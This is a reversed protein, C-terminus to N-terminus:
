SLHCSRARSSAVSVITPLALLATADAAQPRIAGFVQRATVLKGLWLQASLLTGALVGLIALVQLRPRTGPPRDLQEDLWLGVMIALSPVGLSYSALKSSSLSYFALAILASMGMGTRLVERPHGRPVTVRALAQPLFVAWPLLGILLPLFLALM